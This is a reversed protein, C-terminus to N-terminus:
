TLNILAHSEMLTLKLGLFDVFEDKIVRPNNETKINTHYQSPEYRVLSVNSPTTILISDNYPTGRLLPDAIL